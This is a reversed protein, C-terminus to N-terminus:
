VSQAFLTRFLRVQQMVRTDISQFTYGQKDPSRRSPCHSCRFVKAYIWRHNHTDMVKRPGKSSWGQREVGDTRNCHPCPPQPGLFERFTTHPDILCLPQLQFEAPNVDCSLGPAPPVFDFEGGIRFKSCCADAFAEM